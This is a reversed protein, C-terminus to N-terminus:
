DVVFPIYVDHGWDMLAYDSFHCVRAQLVNNVLDRIYGECPMANEWTNSSWNYIYLRLEDENMGIINDETYNLTITVSQSFALNPVLAFALGDAPLDDIPVYSVTETVSVAGPPFEVSNYIGETNTYILTGGSPPILSSDPGSAALTANAYEAASELTDTVNAQSYFIDTMATDLVNRISDWGRIGPESRGLALLGYAQAYQADNAMKTTISIHTEASIRVPFYGSVAGWRATQDRESLWKIFLWAARDEIDNHALIGTGAGYSNVVENGPVAPVHAVGWIDNAGSSMADRYYQIVSSSSFTFAVQGSGFANLEEYRSFPMRAYREDLLQQILLLSEIGPQESFRSTNLDASLLNGERSWLWTAFHSTGVTPITGSITPSTINICATGFEEWTQPVSLGADALKTANYYMLEIASGNQMGALQNGYEGLRYYDMVGPHFDSTDTVGILPDDIYDDLFRVKGYRAFDAFSNPYAVVANPLIDGNQLASIVRDVITGYNGIYEGEVTISYVNTSNFETILKNMFEQRFDTHPHWYTITVPVAQISAPAPPAARTSTPLLMYFGVLVALAFSVSLGLVVSKKKM